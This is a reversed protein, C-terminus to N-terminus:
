VVRWSYLLCVFYPDCMHSGCVAPASIVPPRGQAWLTRWPSGWPHVATNRTDLTPTGKATVTHRGLHHTDQIGELFCVDEADGYYRDHPASVSIRRCEGKRNIRYEPLMNQLIWFSSTITHRLIIRQSLPQRLLSCVGACRRKVLDFFDNSASQRFACRGMSGPPGIVPRM